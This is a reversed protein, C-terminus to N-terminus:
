RKENEAMRKIQLQLRKVEVLSQPIDKATLPSKGIIMSRVYSDSLSEVIKRGKLVM